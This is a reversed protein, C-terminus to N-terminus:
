GAATIAVVSLIALTAIAVAITAMLRPKGAVLRSRAQLGTVIAAVALPVGIYFGGHPLDWALTVGPVALIALALALRPRAQKAPALDIATRDVQTSM